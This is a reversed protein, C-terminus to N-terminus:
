SRSCLDVSRQSMAYQRWITIAIRRDRGIEVAFLDGLSRQPCAGLGDM